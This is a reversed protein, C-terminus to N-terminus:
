GTPSAKMFNVREAVFTDPQEKIAALKPNGFITLAAPRSFPVKGEGLGPDVGPVLKSPTINWDVVLKALYANGDSEVGESTLKLRAGQAFRRNQVGNRHQIAVDSDAGILTMTMPTGDDNYLAAGDIGNLELVAGEDPLYLKAAPKPAPQSVHDHTDM